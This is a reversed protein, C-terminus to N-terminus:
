RDSDNIRNMLQEKIFNKIFPLIIPSAFLWIQSLLSFSTSEEEITEQYATAETNNKKFLRDVGIATVAIIAAPVAIKRLLFKPLENGADNMALKANSTNMKMSQELQERRARLEELNKPLNDKTM